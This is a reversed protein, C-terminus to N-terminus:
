KEANLLPHLTSSLLTQPRSDFFVYQTHSPAAVEGATALAALTPPFLFTFTSPPWHASSNDWQTRSMVVHELLSIPNLVLGSIRLKESSIASLNLDLPAHQAESLLQRDDTDNDSQLHRTAKGLVGTTVRLVRM